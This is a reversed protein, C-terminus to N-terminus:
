SATAAPEGGAPAGARPKYEGLTALFEESYLRYQMAIGNIRAVFYNYAIVAYIAVLLGVATAVLAAAIGQSVVKFGGTGAVSMSQFAKLIGVVTGFLGVFPASSGVTGLAWLYRKLSLVTASRQSTVAETTKHPTRQFVQLGREFVDALPVQSMEAIAAAKGLDGKEIADIVRDKFAESKPLLNWLAYLRECIVALGALSWAILLTLIPWEDRVLNRITEWSM